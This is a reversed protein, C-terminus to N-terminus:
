ADGGADRFAHRAPGAPEPDAATGRSWRSGSAMRGPLAHPDRFHNRVYFHANPMVVGGILAPISAECNLPHARHIMLGADIAGLCAEEPDMSPVDGDTAPLAAGCGGSAVVQACTSAPYVEVTGALAFPEMYAHVQSADNSEIILYLTHEDQVVAEGRIDIGLQRANSRSLYNLLLGGMEPDGTQCRDAEHQHRVIFLAM